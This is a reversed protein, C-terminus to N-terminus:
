HVSVDGDSSEVSTPRTPHYWLQDVADYLAEYDAKTPSENSAASKIIAHDSKTARVLVTRTESNGRMQIEEPPEAFYYDVNTPIEFWPSMPMAAAESCLQNFDSAVDDSSEGRGSEVAEDILHKLDSQYEVDFTAYRNTFDPNFVYRYTKGFWDSAAVEKTGEFITSGGSVINFKHTGPAVHIMKHTNPELEMEHEENLTIQMKEATGNDLVITSPADGCGSITAVLSVAVAAFTTRKLLRSVSTNKM